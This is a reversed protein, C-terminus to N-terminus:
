QGVRTSTVRYIKWAGAVKKYSSTWAFYTTDIPEDEFSAITIKRVSVSALSGDKSVEILPPELDDWALYKVSAFYSQWREYMDSKAELRIAGRQVTVVTDAMDALLLDLDNEMHAKRQNDNSLLLLEREKDLDAPAQCATLFLGLFLLIFLGKMIIIFCFEPSIVSLM